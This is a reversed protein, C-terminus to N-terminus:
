VEGQYMMGEILSSALKESESFDEDIFYFNEAIDQTKNHLEIMKEQVEHSPCPVLLNRIVEGPVAFKTSTKAVNNLRNRVLQTDLFIALAHATLPSGNRIRIRCVRTLFTLQLSYWSHFDSRDMQPSNHMLDCTVWYNPGEPRIMPIFIDNAKIEFSPWAENRSQSFISLEAFEQLKKKPHQANFSVKKDTEALERLSSARQELSLALELLSHNLDKQIKKPSTDFSETKNARFANIELPCGSIILDEPKIIEIPESSKNDTSFTKDTAFILNYISQTDSDTLQRTTNRASGLSRADILRVPRNPDGLTSLVLLSMEVRNDNFFGSGLSIASKVHGLGVLQKRFNASSAATMWKTPLGVLSTGNLKTYALATLIWADPSRMRLKGFKMWRPDSPNDDTEVEQSRSPPIAIVSDFENLWERHLTKLSDEVFLEIPHNKLTHVLFLFAAAKPDIEQAFKVTKTSLRSTTGGIGACLDLVKSGTTLKSILRSLIEPSTTSARDRGSSAWINELDEVFQTLSIENSVIRGLHENTKNILDHPNKTQNTLLDESLPAIFDVKKARSILETVTRSPNNALTDWAKIILYCVADEPKYISKLLTILSRANTYDVSKETDPRSKRDRGDLESSVMFENIQDITWLERKGDLKKSKPFSPYRSRWNSITSSAILLRRAIEALTLLETDSM